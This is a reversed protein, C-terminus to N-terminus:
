MDHQIHHVSEMSDHTQTKLINYLPLYITLLSFVSHGYIARGTDVLIKKIYTRDSETLYKM